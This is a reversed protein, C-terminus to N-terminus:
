WDKVAYTSIQKSEQLRSTCDHEPAPRLELGLEQTHQRDSHRAQGRRCTAAMDRNCATICQLGEFQRAAAARTAGRDLKLGADAATPPIRRAAPSHAAQARAGKTICQIKRKQVCPEHTVHM